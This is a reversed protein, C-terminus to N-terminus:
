TGLNHHGNWYFPPSHGMKDFSIRLQQLVAQGRRGNDASPRHMSSKHCGFFVPNLPLRHNQLTLVAQTIEKGMSASQHAFYQNIEADAGEMIMKVAKADDPISLGGWSVIPRKSKRIRKVAEDLKDNVTEVVDELVSIRRRELEIEETLLKDRNM